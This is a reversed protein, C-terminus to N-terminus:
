GTKVMSIPTNALPSPCSTGVVNLTGTLPSPAATAASVSGDMQGACQPLSPIGGAVVTISYALTQGSVTGTLTGNLLVTGTPLLVLVPGSVSAGNQTLTWRLIAPAGLATINGSWTGSVDTTQTTSPATGGSRGCGAAAAAAMVVVGLAASLRKGVTRGYASSM